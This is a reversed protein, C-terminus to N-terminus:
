PRAQGPWRHKVTASRTAAVLGAMVLPAGIAAAGPLVGSQRAEAPTLAQVLAWSADRWQARTWDTRDEAAPCPPAALWRGIAGALSAPDPECLYAHEAGALQEALGGVRTAIVPLGAALAAAAVGSQSADRYPLVVADAWALLAGIATEPVWHNEVTVGPCARLAALAASEPGLGAVRVEVGSLGSLAEALLDLGKYPLLRGFCLLRPPGSPRPARPMAFAFPPHRFPVADGFGQRRLGRAVHGTLAVVDNATRCLLRQLTMQLPFGDGTHAEAEHVIVAVRCGVLRLAVAMPLDLPGPMACIALDPRLAGVRRVLWPLALPATALRLLLSVMGRYTTVPMRCDPAEPGRMIEADRCLSLSVSLGPHDALARALCAAFRPGAGRRGWQWVLVNM